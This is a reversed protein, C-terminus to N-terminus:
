VTQASPEGAQASPEGTQASPESRRVSGRGTLYASVVEAPLVFVFWAAQIAISVRWAGVSAYPGLTAIAIGFAINAASAALAMRFGLLRPPRLVRPLLSSSYRGTLWTATVLAAALICAGLSLKLQMPAIADFGATVSVIPEMWAMFNSVVMLVLIVWGTRQPGRKSTEM